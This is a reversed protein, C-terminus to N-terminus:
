KRESLWKRQLKIRKFHKNKDLNNIDKIMKDRNKYFVILNKKIYNNPINTYIKTIIDNFMKSMYEMYHFWDVETKDKYHLALTQYCQSTKTAGERKVVIRGFRDGNQVNIGRSKLYNFFIRQPQTEKKYDDGVKMVTELEKIDVQKKYLSGFIENIEELVLNYDARGKLYEEAYYLFYKHKQLGKIVLDEIYKNGKNEKLYGLIMMVICIDKYKRRMYFPRDRKVIPLGKCSFNSINLAFPNKNDIKFNSYMKKGFLLFVQYINEFEMKMPEKYLDKNLAKEFKFGIEDPIKNTRKVIKEKLYTEFDISLKEEKYQKLTKQRFKKSNSLKEKKKNILNMLWLPTEMTSDTDGYVRVTNFKDRMYYSSKNIERRGVYTTVRVLPLCQGKSTSAGKDGYVSNMSVKLAKQLSDLSSIDTNIDLLSSDIHKLLNNYDSENNINFEILSDLRNYNFSILDKKFENIDFNKYHTIKTSLLIKKAKEYHEMLKKVKRREKIQTELILPLIGKKIHAKVFRHYYYVGNDKFKFIWCDEDKVNENKDFEGNDNVLTTYCLNYYMMIAPYLSAFDMCYVNFYIGPTGDHVYGGEKKDKIGEKRVMLYNQDKLYSYEQTSVRIGQGRTFTSTIDVGTVDSTKKIGELENMKNILKIPLVTDICCYEACITMCLKKLWETNNKNHIFQKLLHPKQEEIYKYLDEYIFNLEYSGKVYGYLMFMLNYPLDYKSENLYKNSLFNLSYYQLRYNRKFLIYSDLFIRGPCILTLFNNNGYANSKWSIQKQKIKFDNLRSINMWNKGHHEKLRAKIYPIDFGLINHGLIIDPDLDIILKQIKLILDLEKDVIKYKFYLMDNKREIEDENLVYIKDNEDTYYINKQLQTKLNDSQDIFEEDNKYIIDDKLELKYIRIYKIKEKSVITKVKKDGIKIENIPHNVITYYSLKKNIDSFTCSCCFIDDGPKYDKPMQNVNSANVELDFSLITNNIIPMKNLEEINLPKITSIDNIKYVKNYRHETNLLKGHFQFWNSPTINCEKRFKSVQDVDLEELIYQKGKIKPKLINRLCNLGIKNKSLVKMCLIDESPHFWRNKLIHESFTLNKLQFERLNETIHKLLIEYSGKNPIRIYCSPEYEIILLVTEKLENRGSVYITFHKNWNYKIDDSYWDFPLINM